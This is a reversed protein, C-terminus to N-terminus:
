LEAIQDRISQAKSRLKEIDKIIRPIRAASARYRNRLSQVDRELEEQQYEAFGEPSKHTEKGYENLDSWKMTLLNFEEGRREIALSELQKDNLKSKLQEDQLRNLVAENMSIIQETDRLKNELKLIGKLRKLVPMEPASIKPLNTKTIYRIHLRQVNYGGAYIVDTSFAYSSGDRMVTADIRICGASVSGCIIEVLEDTSLTYKEVAKCLDMTLHMRIDDAMWRPAPTGREEEYKAIRMDVLESIKSELETLIRTIIKNEIKM